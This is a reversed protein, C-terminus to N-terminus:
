AAGGTGLRKVVVKGLLLEIASPIPAGFAAFSIQTVTRGQGLVLMDFYTTVSQGATKTTAMVRFAATRQALKPVELEGSHTVKFTVTQTSAGSVTDSLCRSLGKGVVRRWLTAAQANTKYVWAVQSVFLGSTAEKYSPSSAAGTEVLDSQKPQFRPCTLTTPAAKTPSSTWGKGLDRKVLLARKAIAMDRGTHKRKPEEAAAATGALDGALVFLALLRV